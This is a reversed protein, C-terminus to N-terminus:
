EDFERFAEVQQPLKIETPHQSMNEEKYNFRTHYPCGDAIATDYQECTCRRCM